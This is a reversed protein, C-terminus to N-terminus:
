IITPMWSLIREARADWSFAAVKHLARQARLKADDPHALAHSIQKLLDRHDDPIFFFADEESLEERLAPVNSAVLPTGSAMYEFLKMPSTFRSSHLHRGSNPIVLLDAARLYLPIKSYSIHGLLRLHASPPIKKMWYEVQHNSGGVIVIEMEGPMLISADILTQIGKWTYLSGAYVIIKKYPSLHLSARAQTRSTDIHFENLAVGDPSKIIRSPSQVFPTLTNKLYNSIAIVGACKYWARRYFFDHRPMTHAEWLVTDHLQELTSLLYEDRTYWVSNKVLSNSRVFRVLSRKFFYSQLTIYTGQPFKMFAIPDHCPLTILNFNREIRYYDFPDTGQFQTNVRYPVVLTVDAGHCAFAHCMKMIQIGHAKETPLRINAYYYLKM